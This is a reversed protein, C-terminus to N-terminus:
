RRQFEAAMFLLALAQQRTEARGVAQQTEPSALPRDVTEIIGRRISGHGGHARCFRQRHRAAPRHRRDLDGRRGSLREARAAAVTAEGLLAPRRHLARSRRDHHRGRAGHRRGMRESAQTKAARRAWAEPASVLAKAVERLDGDTELFTKALKSSWRPRRSTPSSIDRWSPPSMSPPRRIRPSIPLVARGQEM